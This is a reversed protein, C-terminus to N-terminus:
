SCMLIKHNLNSSRFAHLFIIWSLKEVNLPGPLISIATDQDRSQQTLPLLIQDLIRVQKWNSLWCFHGPNVPTDFKASPVSAQVVAFRNIVLCLTQLSPWLSYYRYFCLVIELPDFLFMTSWSPFFDLGCNVVEFWRATPALMLIVVEGWKQNRAVLPQPEARVM